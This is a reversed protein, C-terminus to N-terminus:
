RQSATSSGGRSGHYPVAVTTIASVMAASIATPMATDATNTTDRSGTSGVPATTGVIGIVGVGGGIAGVMAGVLAGTGVWAGVRAGVITGDASGGDGTCGLVLWGGGFGDVPLAAGVGLVDAGGFDGLWVVCRGNGWSVM